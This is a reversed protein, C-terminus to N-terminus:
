LEIIEVAKKINEPTLFSDAVNLTFIEKNELTDSKILFRPIGDYDTYKLTIFRAHTKYWIPRILTLIQNIRVNLNPKIIDKIEFSVEKEIISYGEISFGFAKFLSVIELYNSKERLPISKWYKEINTFNDFFFVSNSL